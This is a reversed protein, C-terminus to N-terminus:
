YTSCKRPLSSTVPEFGTMLEVFGTLFSQNKQTKLYFKCSRAYLGQM